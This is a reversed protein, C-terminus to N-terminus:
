VKRDRLAALHRGLRMPAHAHDLPGHGGGFRLWRASRLGERVFSAAAGVAESLGAGRALHAAIASSLSCGTGHLNVTPIRPARLRLREGSEDVLIDTLLDGALHGGKILVARAGRQLLAQGADIASAEDVLRRGTMLGLEDLNPTVVLARPLLLQIIAEVTDEQILRDGSTAVMVPDLVVPVDPYRDLAAAVVEVLARDHLMGIKIADAGIDGLVSEIQRALFEPPLPHIGQVGTTNQATVATIASTGFCGLAAFTKLDAQIGAGGGSDSGAITLVRVPSPVRGAAAFVARLQAAAAAPDEAGEIARVVAIGDAGAALVAAANGADIGGIAVLPLDTLARLASVGELGMAPAADRKTPTDFVPSVALYDLPLKRAREIQALREISWGIFVSAPLAERARAPDVDDQGLHLGDAEVALALDVRDNIVFPVDYRRCLARIARAREALEQNSAAKDRLQLCSVGAALAAEARAMWTLPDPGRGESVWYLQLRARLLDNPRKM